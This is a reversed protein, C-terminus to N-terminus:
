EWRLQTKMFCKSINQERSLWLVILADASTKSTLMVGAKLCTRPSKLRVSPYGFTGEMLEYSVEELVAGDQYRFTTNGPPIGESKRFREWLGYSDLVRAASPPILLSGGLTQLTPTSELVTVHHGKRRLGISAALGAVGGGVIIISFIPNKSAPM